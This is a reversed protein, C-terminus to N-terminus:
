KGWPNSHAPIRRNGGLMRRARQGTKGAQRKCKAIRTIDTDTKKRHCPKHVAVINDPDDDGGIGLAIVHDFEIAVSGTMPKGCLACNAM